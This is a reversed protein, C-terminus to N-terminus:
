LRKLVNPSYRESNHFLRCVFLISFYLCFRSSLIIIPNVSTTVLNHHLKVDELSQNLTFNRQCRIHLVYFIRIQVPVRNFLVPLYNM